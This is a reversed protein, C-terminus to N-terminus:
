DPCTKILAAAGGPLHTFLATSNRKLIKVFSKATGNPEASYAPTTKPKLDRSGVLALSKHATYMGGIDTLWEIPFPKEIPEFRSEISKAILGRLTCDSKQKDYDTTRLAQSRNERFARKKPCLHAKLGM